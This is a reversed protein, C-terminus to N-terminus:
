FYRTVKVLLPLLAAVKYFYSAWWQWSALVSPHSILQLEYGQWATPEKHISGAVLITKSPYQNWRRTTSFWAPPMRQLVIKQNELQL